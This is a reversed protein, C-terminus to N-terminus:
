TSRWTSTTATACAAGRRGATATRGARARGRARRRPRPGPGTATSGGWCTMSRTAGGHGAPRGAAFPGSPQPGPPNPRARQPGRAARRPRPMPAGSSCGSSTPSTRRGRRTSNTASTAAAGRRPTAPSRVARGLHIEPAPGSLVAPRGPGRAAPGPTSTGTPASCTTSSASRPIPWSRTRRTSTRSGESPPRTAPIATLTFSAPWGGTRRRSRRRPPRGRGSGADPLLGQIGDARSPQGPRRRDEITETAAREHGPRKLPGTENDAAQESAAHIPDSLRKGCLECDDSASTGSPIEPGM